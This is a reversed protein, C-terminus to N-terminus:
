KPKNKEGETPNWRPDTSMTNIREWVTARHEEPVNEKSFKDSQATEKFRQKTEKKGHRSLYEFKREDLMAQMVVEKDYLAEKQINKVWEQPEIKDMVEKTTMGLEGALDPRARYITKVNAGKEKAERIFREAKGKLEKREALVEVGAAREYRDQEILIPQSIKRRIAENGEPTDPITKIKTKAKEIRKAKEAEYAGPGGLARGILPKRELWERARKEAKSVAPIRRVAGGSMRGTWKGAGM